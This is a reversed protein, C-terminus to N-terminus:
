SKLEGKVGHLCKGLSYKEVSPFHDGEAKALLNSVQMCSRPMAYSASEFHQEDM